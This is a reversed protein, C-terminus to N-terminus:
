CIKLRLINKKSKRIYEKNKEPRFEQIEGFDIALVLYYGTVERKIRVSKIKGNFDRDWLINFNKLKKSLTFYKKDNKEEIKIRSNAWSFSGSIESSKKYNAEGRNKISYKAWFAKKATLRAGQLTDSHIYLNRLRLNNKIIIDIEKDSKNIKKFIIPKINTKKYPVNGSVVKHYTKIDNKLTSITINYAQNYLFIENDLLSKEKKSLKIKYKYNEVHKM